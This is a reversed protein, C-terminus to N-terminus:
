VNCDNEVMVLKKKELLIRWFGIAEDGQLLFSDDKLDFSDECVDFCDIRSKSFDLVIVVVGQGISKRRRDDHSEESVCYLHATGICDHSGADFFEVLVVLVLLVLLIRRLVSVHTM